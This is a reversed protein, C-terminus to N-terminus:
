GLREGPLQSRLMEKLAGEIPTESTRVPIGESSPSDADVGPVGLSVSKWGTDLGKQAEELLSIAAECAICEQQNDNSGAPTAWVIGCYWIILLPAAPGTWVRLFTAKVAIKM